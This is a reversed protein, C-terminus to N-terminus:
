ARSAENKGSSNPKVLIWKVTRKGVVERRVKGEAVLMLLHYRVYEKSKGVKEMIEPILTCGEELAKLISERASKGM